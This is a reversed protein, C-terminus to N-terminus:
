EVMVRVSRSMSMVVSSLSFIVHLMNNNIIESFTQIGVPLRKLIKEEM